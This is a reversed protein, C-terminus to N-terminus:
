GTAMRTVVRDPHVELVRMAMERALGIVGELLLGFSKESGNGEHVELGSSRRAV